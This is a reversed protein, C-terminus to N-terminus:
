PTDRLGAIQKLMSQISGDILLAVKQLSLPTVEPMGRDMWSFLIGLFASTHLQAVFEREQSTVELGQANAAAQRRMIPFLIDTLYQELRIRGVSRYANLVLKQNDRLYQVTRCFGEKWPCDPDGLQLRVIEQQFIWDLLAYVDQFNYYFTQRNIGCKAVIEKVTIHDLTKQSLLSKLSDALRQKTDKAM